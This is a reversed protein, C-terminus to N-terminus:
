RAVSRALSELVQVEDDCTLMRFRGFDDEGIPTTDSHTNVTTPVPRLLLSTGDFELVMHPWRQLSERDDIAIQGGAGIRYAHREVAFAIGYILMAVTDDARFVLEVDDDSRLAAGDHSRFTIVGNREIRDVFARAAPSSTKVRLVEGQEAAHDSRGSSCCWLLSALSCVSAAARM